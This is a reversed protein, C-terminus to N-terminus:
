HNNGDRRPSIMRQNITTIIALGFGFNAHYQHFFPHYQSAGNITSLAEKDHFFYATRLLGSNGTMMFFPFDATDIPSAGAYYRNITNSFCLLCKPQQQDSINCFSLEYFDLNLSSDALRYWYSSRAFTEDDSQFYVLLCYACWSRAPWIHLLFVQEEWISINQCHCPLAQKWCVLGVLAWPVTSGCLLLSRLFMLGVFARSVFDTTGQLRRTKEKELSLKCVENMCGMCMVQLRCTVWSIIRFNPSQNYLM